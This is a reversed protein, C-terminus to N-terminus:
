PIVKLNPFTENIRVSQYGLCCMNIVGLGKSLVSPISTPRFESTLHGTTGRLKLAFAFNQAHLQIHLKFAVNEFVYIMREQNQLISDFFLSLVLNSTFYNNLFM